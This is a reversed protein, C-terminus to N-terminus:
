SRAPAVRGDAGYVRQGGGHERNHSQSSV